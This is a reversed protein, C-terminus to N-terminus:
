VSLGTSLQLTHGHCTHGSIFLTCITNSVLSSVLLCTTCRSVQNKCTATFLFISKTVALAWTTSCQPLVNLIPIRYLVYASCLISIWNRFYFHLCNILVCVWIFIYLHTHTQIHTHTYTHMHTSVCVILTIPSMPYCKLFLFLFSPLFIYISVLNLVSNLLLVLYYLFNWYFFIIWTYMM